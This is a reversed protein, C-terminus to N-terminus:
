GEIVKFGRKEFAHKFHQLLVQDDTWRESVGGFINFPSWGYIKSPNGNEIVEMLNENFPSNDVISQHQSWYGPEGYAPIMKNSDSYINVSYENGSVKVASCVISDLLQFTRQYYATEKADPEYGPRGYFRTKIEMRVAKRTEEGIKKIEEMIIKGLYQEIEKLNKAVFQAM